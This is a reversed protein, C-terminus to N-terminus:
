NDNRSGHYQELLQEIAQKAQPLRQHVIAQVAEKRLRGPPDIWFQNAYKFLLEHQAETYAPTVRKFPSGNYKALYHLAKKLDETPDEHKDDCRDLYKTIVGQFYDLQLELALDWHQISRRMYHKGGVQYENPNM